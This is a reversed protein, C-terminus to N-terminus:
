ASIKVISLFVLYPYKILSQETTLFSLGKFDMANEFLKLFYLTHITKLWDYLFQTYIKKGLSNEPIEM